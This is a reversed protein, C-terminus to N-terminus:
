VWLLGPGAQHPPPQASAFSPPPLVGGAGGALAQPLPPCCLASGQATQNRLSGPWVAWCLAHLTPMHQVSHAPRPVCLECTADPSVSVGSLDGHRHLPLEPSAFRGAPGSGHAALLGAPHRAPVLCPATNAAPAGRSAHLLVHRSAPPSPSAGLSRANFTLRRGAAGTSLGCSSQWAWTQCCRRAREGGRRQWLTGEGRPCM